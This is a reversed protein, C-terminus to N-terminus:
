RGEGAARDTKADMKGKMSKRLIDEAKAADGGAEVLAKKCEMMSLGTQNRLRMVESASIEAVDRDGQCIRLIKVALALDGSAKEPALECAGRTRRTVKM